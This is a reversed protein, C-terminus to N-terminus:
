GRSKLRRIEEAAKPREKKFEVVLVLHDKLNALYKIAEPFGSTVNAFFTSHSCSGNLMRAWIKCAATSGRAKNLHSTLSYVRLDNLRIRVATNFETQPGPRAPRHLSITKRHHQWTM